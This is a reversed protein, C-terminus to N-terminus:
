GTTGVLGGQAGTQPLPWPRVDGSVDIKRVVAPKPSTSKSGIWALVDPLQAKFTNMNHGGDPITWTSLAFPPVLAQRIREISQMENQEQDGAIMLLEVPAPHKAVNLTVTNADVIDQRGKFLDETGGDLAAKDYGSVSAANAYWQPHRTALNVACYGGSSWGAITWSKRDAGVHLTRTAWARIDASLFTDNAKGNVEDVCESDHGARPFGSPDPIVVVSPPLLKNKIATDLAEPLEYGSGAVEPGSPYNPIWEIVPFTFGAYAPDYYQPPLYLNVDRTLGSRDGTVTMHFTSGKGKAGRDRNYDKLQDLGAGNAGADGETGEGSVNATGLLAGMTPFFGGIMNLTMGSIALVLVVAVVTTSSRGVRTWKWKDWFWPVSVVALLALVGVIILGFVSDLRISSM